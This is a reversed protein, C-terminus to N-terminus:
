HHGHMLQFIAVLAPIVVVVIWAGEAFKTIAL